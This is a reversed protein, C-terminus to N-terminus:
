ELLIAEDLQQFLDCKQKMLDSFEKKSFIRMSLLRIRGIMKRFLIYWKFAIKGSLPMFVVFVIKMWIEPLLWQFAFFVLLYFLPFLILSPVLFFTSWFSKDRVKKRVVKDIIFFPLANCVLGFIFLTLGALLIIKSALLKLMNYESNNVLWNRLKVQKIKSQLAQNQKSLKEFTVLNENALTDLKESLLKDSFFRNKVTDKKGFRMLFQQGYNSIIDEIEYYFKENKINIILESIANELQERLAITASNQNQKFLGTFNNVAIPKGFNVLLNRNFKWYSSYYIGTPVIQIDLKFNSREAAMFVIRPVAKKHALMQRKFNHAAEPFLALAFNNQLVKVSDSFTKDNKGLNEKGDRMRYVPMIKLFRLITTIIGKKFIDARALWVPQFQTNLLVAMPDSLANQHNPAFVIPKNKPINEKGVIVKKNHIVWDIFIVYQKLMWYGLSWKEYKM